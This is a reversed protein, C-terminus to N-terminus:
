TLVTEYPQALGLRALTVTNAVPADSWSPWTDLRRTIRTSDLCVNKKALKVYM